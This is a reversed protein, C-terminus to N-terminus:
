WAQFCLLSLLTEEVKPMFGYGHRHLKVITSYHATLKHKVVTPCYKAAQSLYEETLDRPLTEGLFLKM